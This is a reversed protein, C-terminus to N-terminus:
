YFLFLLKKCVRAMIMNCVVKMLIIIYDYNQFHPCNIWIHAVKLMLMFLEEKSEVVGFKEIKNIHKTLKELFM